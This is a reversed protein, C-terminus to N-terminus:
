IVYIVFLELRRFIHMMEDYLAHIRVFLYITHCSCIVRVLIICFSVSGRPFEVVKLLGSEDNMLLSMGLPLRERWVLEIKTRDVATPVEMIDDDDAEV